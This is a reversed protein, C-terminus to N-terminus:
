EGKLVFAMRGKSFKFSTFLLGLVIIFGPISRLPSSWENQVHYDEVLIVGESEIKCIGRLIVIDGARVVYTMNSFLITLGEDTVYANALSSDNSSSFITVTTSIKVDELRNINESILFAEIRHYEFSDSPPILVSNFSLSIVLMLSFAILAKVFNKKMASGGAIPTLEEINEHNGKDKLWKLWKRLCHM